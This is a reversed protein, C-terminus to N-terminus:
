KGEDLVTAMIEEVAVNTETTVDAVIDSVIRDIESMTTKAEGADKAETAGEAEAKVDAPIMTKVSSASPPTQEIAQM